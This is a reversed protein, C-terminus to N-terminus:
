NLDRLFGRFWCSLRSVAAVESGLQSTLRHLHWWTISPKRLYRRGRKSHSMIVKGKLNSGLKLLKNKLLVRSDHPFAAFPFKEEKGAHLAVTCVPVEDQKCLQIMNFMQQSILFELSFPSTDLRVENM